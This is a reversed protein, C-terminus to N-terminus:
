FVEKQGKGSVLIVIEGLIRRNSFRRILDSLKGRAVEEFKKTLERAVAAERDGLIELMDKLAKLLRFPSEYFILTESNEAVNTLDRRRGSAKAPLFGLFSLRAVPLGSAVLATVFATPGPLCEVRVGRRIAERLLPFGPDSVLPTGSDSVLGVSNGKELIGLIKELKGGPSHDHFSLLPKKIEYHNLLKQTRRTDECAIFDAERLVDLARLTIDRLNGIPTPIITLM